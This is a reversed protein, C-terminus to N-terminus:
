LPKPMSFFMCHAARGRQIPCHTSQPNLHCTASENRCEQACQAAEYWGKQGCQSAACEDRAAREGQRCHTGEEKAGAKGKRTCIDTGGRSSSATGSTAGRGTSSASGIGTTATSGIGSPAGRATSRVSSRAATSTATCACPRCACPCPCTACTWTSCGNTTISTSTHFVDCEASTPSYRSRQLPFVADTFVWWLIRASAASIAFQPTSICHCREIATSISLTPGM